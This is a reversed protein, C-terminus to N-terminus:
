HVLTYSLSLLANFPDRPPRRNRHTFRFSDPVVAKLGNFYIRAAAGELGRVRGVKDAEAVKELIPKLQRVALTLEYRANLDQERLSLFWKIQQEIKDKVLTKAFNLCFNKDLSYKIQAVRRRADNHPRALLLSPKKGRGSLVIVGVGEEGLKGLLSASLKVDGRLFVRTLPAMPITGIREGKNRFIIAGSEYELETSRRDIFLSTM